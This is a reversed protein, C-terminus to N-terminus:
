SCNLYNFPVCTWCWIKSDHVSIFLECSGGSCGGQKQNQCISATSSPVWLDSSGTDIQVQLDQAPTGVSINAYYLGAQVANGLGATVTNSARAALGRRQLAASRAAIQQAQVDANQAIGWQVVGASASSLLSTAVLFSTLRAM